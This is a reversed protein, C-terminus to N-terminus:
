REIDFMVIPAKEGFYPLSRIVNFDIWEIADMEECDNDLMFEEIMKEYSYVLRNDYTIGIISNDFSSNDLILAEEPLEKRLEENVM